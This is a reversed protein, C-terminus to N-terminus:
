NKHQLYKEITCQEYLKKGLLTVAQRPCHNVCRYCMTCRGKQVAKGSQIILNHMPCLSSCIGCGVCANQDIRLKDSYRRTKGYFWLRQGFLGALHYGFGLGERPAAGKGLAQAAKKIKEEATQILNQNQGATRKLAKEDGICDPMKLHLGGTIRAGYKQFLRASCGTGDGSFLGMTAILFIEKGTFLLHHEEIFDRVIKPVNSFYVPYAFVLQRNMKIAHIAQEEEISYSKAAKDYCALFNEICFKTNGTGSFYIGVM